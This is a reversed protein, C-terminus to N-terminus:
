DTRSSAPSPSGRRVSQRYESQRRRSSSSTVRPTTSTARASRPSRSTPRRSCNSISPIPSHRCGSYVDGIGLLGVPTTLYGVLVIEVEPSAAALRILARAALAFDADHTRTGSGYIIRVKGDEPRRPADRSIQMTESDLANEIVAATGGGVTRMQRGLFETSAVVDRCKELAQRYLAAGDFLGQVTDADMGVLNPNAQYADLDFILNDLEFLHPIGLHKAEDILALVEPFGPTRYFIVLSHTQMLSRAAAADQWPVVTCDWGLLEIMDRKQEVRYKRCQTLTLEAVLLARMRLLRTHSPPPYDHRRVAAPRWNGDLAVQYLGSLGRARALHAARRFTAALGDRRITRGVRRGARRATNISSCTRAVLLQVVRLLATRAESEVKQQRLSKLREEM